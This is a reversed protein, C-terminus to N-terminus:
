EKTRVPSLIARLGGIMIAPDTGAALMNFGLDRYRRTAAPDGSMFGLGKGHKRAAAVIRAVADLFLPNDFQAPIGLFNTLDFHGLWLVDIGDVGAIEEVAALGRETEIQAIVLNREDLVKMKTGIDGGAYDDHAFGFGAGRRGNPPYHTAEVIARAQEASEVMPVMVGHMGVDLARALFHYEGRPVRAMPAVSLGRAAAQMQKLTEISLGSHEMDFMVFDCGAVEAIRAMGPSFFEFVMAGAVLKGARVRQKLTEQNM